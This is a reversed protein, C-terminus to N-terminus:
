QSQRQMGLAAAIADVFDRYPRTQALTLRKRLIDGAADRQVDTYTPVSAKLESIKQTRNALEGILQEILDAVIPGDIGGAPSLWQKSKRLHGALGNMENILAADAGINQPRREIRDVEAVM